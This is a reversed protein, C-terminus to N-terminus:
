QKNRGIICTCIHEQLYYVELKPWIRHELSLHKKKKIVGPFWTDDWAMAPYILSYAFFFDLHRFVIDAHSILERHPFFDASFLPKFNSRYIM